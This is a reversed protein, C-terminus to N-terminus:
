RVNILSEDCHLWEHIARSDRINMCFRNDYPALLVGAQLRQEYFRPSEYHAAFGGYKKLRIALEVFARYTDLDHGSSAVPFCMTLHSNYHDDETMGEGYDTTLTCVARLAYREANISVPVYMKGYCLVTVM